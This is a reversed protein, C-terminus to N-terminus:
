LGNRVDTWHACLGEDVSEPGDLGDGRGTDSVERCRGADARHNGPAELADHAAALVSRQPQCDPRTEVLQRQSHIVRVSEGLERGVVAVGEISHQHGLCDGLPQCDDSAVGVDRAVPDASQLGSIVDDRVSQGRCSNNYDLEAETALGLLKWSAIEANERIRGLGHLKKAQGNLGQIIIM